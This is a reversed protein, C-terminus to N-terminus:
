LKLCVLNYRLCINFIFFSYILYCSCLDAQLFLLCFKASVELTCQLTSDWAWLGRRPLADLAWAQVSSGRACLSVGAKAWEEGTYTCM